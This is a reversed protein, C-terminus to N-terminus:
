QINKAGKDYILQSSIYLYKMAKWEMKNCDHTKIKRLTLVM